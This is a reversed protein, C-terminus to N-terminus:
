GGWPPVREDPAELTPSRSFVCLFVIFSMVVSVCPSLLTSVVQYYVNFFFIHHHLYNITHMIYAFMHCASIITQGISVSM